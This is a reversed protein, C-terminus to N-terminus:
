PCKGDDADSAWREHTLAWWLQNVDIIRNSSAKFPEVLFKQNHIRIRLGNNCLAVGPLKTSNNNFSVPLIRAVIWSLLPRVASCEAFGNLEFNLAPLVKMPSIEVLMMMQTM